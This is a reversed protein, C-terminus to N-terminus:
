TCSILPGSTNGNRLKVSAQICLTYSTDVNVLYPKDTEPIYSGNTSVMLKAETRGFTNGNLSCTVATYVNNFYGGLGSPGAEVGLSVKFMGFGADYGTFNAKCQAQFDSNSVKVTKPAPLPPTAAQTSAPVAVLLGAAAVMTTALALIRRRGRGPSTRHKGM